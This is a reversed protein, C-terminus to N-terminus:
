RRRKALFERRAVVVAVVSLHDAKSDLSQYGDTNRPEAVFHGPRVLKYTRIYHNSHKDKVLVIEGPEAEWDPELVLRDGQQIKPSMSDDPMDVFKTRPGVEEGEVDVFEVGEAGALSSNVELMLDVRGWSLLPMRLKIGSTDIEEAQTKNQNDLSLNVSGGLDLPASKVSVALQGSAQAMRAWHPSFDEIKCPIAAAFKRATDISLNNKGNLYHSVNAQKGIGSRRGFDTRSEGRGEVIREYIAKLRAADEAKNYAMDALSSVIDSGETNITLSVAPIMKQIDSAM